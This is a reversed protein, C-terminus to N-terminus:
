VYLNGKLALDTRLINTILEVVYATSNYQIYQDKVLM